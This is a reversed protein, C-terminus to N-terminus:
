EPGRFDHRKRGTSLVVPIPILLRKRAKRFADSAENERVASQATISDGSALPYAYQQDPLRWVGSM